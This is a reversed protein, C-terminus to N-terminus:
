REKMNRPWQKRREGPKNEPPRGAEGQQPQRGPHCVACKEGEEILRGCQPCPKYGQALQWRQMRCFNRMVGVFTERLEPEEIETALSQIAQEEAPALPAASLEPPSLEPSAAPPSSKEGGQGLRASTARIEKIFNGGLRENLKALLKASDLQLQQARPASDCKVTVIDDNVRTVTTHQNYWPGVVEAWVLAALVRRSKHLISHHALYKDLIEELNTIKGDRRNVM